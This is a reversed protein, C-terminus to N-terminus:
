GGDPGGMATHWWWIWSQRTPVFQHTVTRCMM